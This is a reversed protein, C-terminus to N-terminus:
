RAELMKLLKSREFYLWYQSKSINQKLTLL